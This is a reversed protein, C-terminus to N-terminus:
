SAWRASPTPPLGGYIAHRSREAADAELRDLDRSLQDFERVLQAAAKGLASPELALARMVAHGIM